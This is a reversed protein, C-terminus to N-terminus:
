KKTIIDVECAAAIKNVMEILYNIKDNVLSLSIEREQIEIRTERDIEVDEQDETQESRKKM